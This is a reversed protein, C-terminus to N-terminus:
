QFAMCYDYMDDFYICGNDLIKWKTIDNKLVFPTELLDSMHGDYCMLKPQTANHNMILNIHMWSAWRGLFVKAGFDSAKVVFSWTVHKEANELLIDRIVANGAWTMVEDSCAYSALVNIEDDSIEKDKIINLRVKAVSHDVHQEAIPKETAPLADDLWIAPHLLRSISFKRTGICNPMCCQVQYTTDDFLSYEYLIDEDSYTKNKMRAVKSKIDSSVMFFKHIVVGNFQCINDTDLQRCFEVEHDIPLRVVFKKWTFPIDSKSVYNLEYVPNSIYHLQDRYYWLAYAYSADYEQHETMYEMAYNLASGSVVEDDQLILCYECGRSKLDERVKNYFCIERSDAESADSFVKGDAEEVSFVKYDSIAETDKLNKVCDEVDSSMSEKRDYSLDHMYIVLEIDYKYYKTIAAVIDHLFETDNFAIIGVGLKQNM